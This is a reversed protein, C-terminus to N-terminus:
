IGLKVEPGGAEELKELLEPIRTSIIEELMSNLEQYEERALELSERHLPTPGYTSGMVGRYATSFRQSITPPNKEGIENRASSGSIRARLELLDMKLQHIEGHLSGPERSARELSLEMLDAKKISENLNISLISYQKRFEDLEKLFALIEDYGAGELSGSTMAKVEFEVPGDLPTLEGDAEKALSVSYTGPIALIGRGEREANNETIPQSPSYQLDWAIRQFGKKVPAELKRVVNGEMDKVTLWLVPDKQIKEKDLAEWGPFPIDAKQKQLEKEREQREEKLTPIDEKLYLTFVAGFPPNEAVFLGEGQSGKASRGLPTRPMYWWADKVPFLSAEEELKEASVERLPAIDDLVYFGRGFTAGVLDNERKHIALDRFSITPANGTIKVWHTGADVTFYIGFETGLFFLKRNVHDQVIRWLLTREPLNSVMSTWTRGRDPSKVLYPEFDGYKHNDMVVYVTNEDFLDAKVDNIFATQPVGPMSGVEVKRWNAGGDDTVQLLGDDTGAYILDENLPSQALSTISNYNSMAYLDWPSDWSQQKGMIELTIREQNRTLDGSIPTWSDGRNESKWVRQSAFFLTAPDHPSVLIPSDWNFREAPEGKGPQPQIFVSEGTKRDLRNLYGEQSQAYAINPNGPETAPQHGDGGLVVQWDSNRIGSVNDTRSPGMQTNNDQTGGYINYFPETDDLALKYFQTVPLNAIYRWNEALDFSEYIGGDTGILLYDPDDKRFAIAHNDGHKYRENLRRMTKGGDDSVQITVDCLYIRDFSHPSAYLEQYYHPGTGGAVADSMKKWSAGRDETRYIGGTRRDLEIAAYVVDPNIPSIALGIKGMNGKPLGKEMKEWSEGGDTSKYLATEPGGGMYAAITRHRQWTAAYLIDPNRPDMVLDTAGTYEEDGLKKNWTIGGDTSKYLGREGGPTWLPGQATVWIVDSNEPHILIRSIRESKKLGMNKWTKGGDESLYIGDGYGAHRGGVDEGSGVWVRHPNSPDIAVCGVSYSGQGDFVPDWTVGANSTKWIGGSGVAIYWVNDDEPHIAIDAIRGSMFAPGISRLQFGSFTSETFLSKGPDTESDSKKRQSYVDSVTLAIIGSMFLFSLIRKMM